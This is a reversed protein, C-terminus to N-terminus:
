VLTSKFICISFLILAIQRLNLSFLVLANGGPFFAGWIL